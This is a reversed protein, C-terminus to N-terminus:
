YIPIIAEANSILVSYSATRNMYSNLSPDRTCIVLALRHGAKVTYLNPQLYIDYTHETLTTNGSEWASASSFGASPNALDIWGSAIVKYKVSSPVVEVVTYSEAGGGVDFIEGTATHYADEYGSATNYANFATDSMDVLFATLMQNDGSTQPTATVTVKITGTITTDETVDMTTVTSYDTNNATYKAVYNSSSIGSSYNKITQGPAFEMAMSKATEWSDYTDWSGDVNDQVTVAAMDDAGNDIDYLHYTFWRNLVDQYAEGNIFQETKNKGYAPTVHGDQFLLLKVDAGATQYADYMMQFNKTRVNNDNLGHVILAPCKINAANLTYDRIAWHGDADGYSGYLAEEDADLQGLYSEYATSITSWDSSDNYRSACYGALSDTYGDSRLYMGQSCSYEYWSAIGGVPVITELGAVGTTALGFQTTGAYSRGTMGIQDNCWDAEIAINSAKDTYAVRDGTLWEIVCAFADIELDSGCTEFGESGRSGPGASVVVAYGRVLFYDYWDLNEYYYFDSADAAAAVEETTATGAVTRPTATSYLKSIDYSGSGSRNNTTGACYPRAEYIVAAEYEGEMAARPLQVVAKILDLKGDSDTDYDSEVYVCFRVIDSGENTYSEVSADTYTLIPQALGNQFMMVPVDVCVVDTDVSDASDASIRCFYYFEGYEKTPVTLVAATAGEIPAADTKSADTCSYWQYTVEAGNSASAAVTLTAESGRDPTLNEPQTDVTIFPKSVEVCVVDTDADDAGEMSVRCFYFQKGEVSTPVIYSNTTADKIAAADTKDPDSCVYWHYSVDSGDSGSAEVTLQADDGIFITLDEPQTSIVISAAAATVTVCVVDSDLEEVKAATKASFRCFYHFDGVEAPTVTLTGSTAGEIPAAGTKDADACSYWQYAAETGNSISAATTLTITGGQEITSSSPQADVKVFPYVPIKSTRNQRYLVNARTRLTNYYVNSCTADPDFKDTDLVLDVYYALEVWGGVTKSDSQTFRAWRLLSEVASKQTLAAANANVPALCTVILVLAMLLSLIRKKM